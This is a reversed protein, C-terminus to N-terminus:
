TLLINKLGENLISLPVNKHNVAERGDMIYITANEKM